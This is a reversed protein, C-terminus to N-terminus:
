LTPGGGGGKKDQVLIVKSKGVGGKM